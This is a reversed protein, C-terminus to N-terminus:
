GRQLLALVLARAEEPANSETVVTADIKHSEGSASSAVREMSNLGRTLADFAKADEKGEVVEGLWEYAKVTIQEQKQMVLDRLRLRMEEIQAQVAPRAQVGRVTEVGVELARAIPHAGFGAATMVAVQNEVPAGKPRTTGFRKYTKGKNRGPVTPVPEPTLLVVETETRAVTDEPM